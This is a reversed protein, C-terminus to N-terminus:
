QVLPYDNRSQKEKFGWGSVVTDGVSVEYGGDGVPVYYNTRVRHYIPCNRWNIDQFFPSFNTGSYDGACVTKANPTIIAFVNRCMASIANSRLDPACPFVRFLIPRNQIGDLTKTRYKTIQVTDYGDNFTRDRDIYPNGVSDTELEDTGRVTELVVGVPVANSPPNPPPAGETHPIVILGGQNGQFKSYVDALVDSRFGDEITIEKAAPPIFQPMTVNQVNQACAYVMSGARVVQDAFLAIRGGKTRFPLEAQVTFEAEAVQSTAPESENKRWLEDSTYYQDRPICAGYLEIAEPMGTWTSCGAGRYIGLAGSILGTTIGHTIIRAPEGTKYGNNWPLTTGVTQDTITLPANRAGLGDPTWSDSVAVGFSACNRGPVAGEAPLIMTTDASEIQLSEPNYLADRSMFDFSGRGEQYPLVCVSRPDGYDTQYTYARESRITLSVTDNRFDPDPASTIQVLQGPYLLGIPSFTRSQELYFTPYSYLASVSYEKSQPKTTGLRKGGWGFFPFSNTGNITTIGFQECWDITNMYAGSGVTTRPFIQDPSVDSFSMLRIFETIDLDLNGTADRGVDTSYAMQGVGQRCVPAVPYECMSGLGLGLVRFGGVDAGKEVMLFDVSDPGNQRVTGSASLESFDM